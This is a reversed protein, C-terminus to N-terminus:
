QIESTGKALRKLAEIARNADASPVFIHDHYYGAIVNCSINEDTLAKSFAATLGVAELASHVKLTIWAYTIQFSINKEVASEKSIIATIGEQEQFICIPTNKLADEISNFVCFVYEGFHLEPQMNQILKSLNTEGSM